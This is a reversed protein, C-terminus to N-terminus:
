MLWLAIYAAQNRMYDTSSMVSISVTKLCWTMYSINNINQSKNLIINRRIIITGEYTNNIFEATIETDITNFTTM